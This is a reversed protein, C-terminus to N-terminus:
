PLTGKMHRFKSISPFNYLLFFNKEITLHLFCLFFPFLHFICLLLGPKKDLSKQLHAGYFPM